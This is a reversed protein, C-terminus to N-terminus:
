QVIIKANSGFLFLAVAALPNPTHILVVDYKNRLKRFHTFFHLSIPSSLFKFMTGVECITSKGAKSEHTLKDSSFCLVDVVHDKKLSNVLSRTITEIGGQLSYYKGVQLIKYKMSVATM